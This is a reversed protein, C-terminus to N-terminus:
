CFAAQCFGCCGCELTRPATCLPSRAGFLARSSARQPGWGCGAGRATCWGALRGEHGLEGRGRGQVMGRAHATGVTEQERPDGNETAAVTRARLGRVAQNCGGPRGEADLQVVNWVPSHRAGVYTHHTPRPTAPRPISHTRWSLAGAGRTVHGDMGTGRSEQGRSTSDEGRAAM